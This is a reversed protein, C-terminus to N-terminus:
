SASAGKLTKAIQAYDTMGVIQEESLEVNFEEELALMLKMHRLSDWRAVNAPSADDGISEPSVGMIRAMVAKIRQEM